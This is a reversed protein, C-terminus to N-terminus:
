CLRHCIESGSFPGARDICNLLEKIIIGDMFFISFVFFFDGM